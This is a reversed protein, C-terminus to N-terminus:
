LEEKICIFSRALLAYARYWGPKTKIGIVAHGIFSM